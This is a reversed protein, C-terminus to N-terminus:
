LAQPVTSKPDHKDEIAALDYIVPMLAQMSEPDGLQWVRLLVAVIVRRIDEKKDRHERVFRFFTHMSQQGALVRILLIFLHKTLQIQDM